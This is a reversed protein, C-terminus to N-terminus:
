KAREMRKKHIEELCRSYTLTPLEGDKQLTIEQSMPGGFAAKLRDEAENLDDFRGPRKLLTKAEEYIAQITKARSLERIRAMRQKNIEEYCRTEVEVQKKRTQPDSNWDYASFAERVSKQAEDLLQLEPDSPAPSTPGM